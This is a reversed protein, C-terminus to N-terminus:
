LVEYIILRHKKRRKDVWLSLKEKVTGRVKTKENEDKVLSVIYDVGESANESASRDREAYFSIRHDPVSIIDEPATNEKLWKAAERYGKKEIRLPRVLKPLCITIGVAVLIFFWLQPRPNDKLCGKSFRNSLWEAFIQLGIPVYFISFVVLPLCHRRSIYGQSYHLLIMMIVNFVIFVPVFFREVATAISQKSYRYYFGVLLAPLFFYMLNDSIGGILRGMARIVKGFLNMIGYIRNHRDINVEQKSRAHFSSVTDEKSSYILQKLKTPIIRGRERVYPAVPLAFGILLIFLAGVLKPRNMKHTPLFLRILLWLVGYIVLQACEPRIIHGLGGALGVIGFMWWKGDKSGQLLFLFGSALFLIHPWDRLADSGFEAPYPLLILILLAWFSNRSGVLLKGIFYLPIIALLRCLLNISQASYIWVLISLSGSFLMVFKHAIFILFPYGPPHPIIVSKPDSLFKQAQKIYYVGDDAILLTTAILYIGLLSAIFLLIILNVVDEQHRKPGAEFKIAMM